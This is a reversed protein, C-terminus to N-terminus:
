VLHAATITVLGTGKIYLTEGLELMFTMNEKQAVIHGNEASPLSTGVRLYAGGNQPTIWVSGEGTAVPTWVQTATIDTTVAM